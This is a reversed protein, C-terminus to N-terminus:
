TSRRRVPETHRRTAAILAEIRAFRNPFAFAHCKRQRTLRFRGHHASATRRACWNFPSAGNRGRHPRCCSGPLESLVAVQGTSWCPTCPTPTSLTSKWGMQISTLIKTVRRLAIYKIAFGFLNRKCNERIQMLLSLCQSQKRYCYWSIYCVYFDNSHM